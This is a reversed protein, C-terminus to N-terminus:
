DDAGLDLGAVRDDVTGKATLLIVPIGRTASQARLEQLLGLGDLVPMMVDSVVLDPTAEALRALAEQGDAALTVEYGARRLQASALRRLQDEDDVVLVSGRAPTATM